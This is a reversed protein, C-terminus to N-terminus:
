HSTYMEGLFIGGVLYAIWPSLLSKDFAKTGGIGMDKLNHRDEHLFNKSPRYM